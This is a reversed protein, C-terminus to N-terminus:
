ANKWLILHAVAAYQGAFGSTSAEVLSSLSDEESTDEKNSM